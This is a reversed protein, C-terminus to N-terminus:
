EAAQIYSTYDEPNNLNRFPIEDGMPYHYVSCSNLARHIALEGRNLADRFVPACAKDYFAHLPELKGDAYIPVVGIGHGSQGWMKQLLPINVRPIDVAIVFNSITPSVTLASALGELPGRGVNEDLIVDVGLHSLKEPDNASILVHPFHKHLTRVHREIIKEDGVKLFRKDTGM